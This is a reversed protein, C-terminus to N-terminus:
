VDAQLCSDLAEQMSECHVFEPDGNPKFSWVTYGSSDPQPGTVDVFGDSVFRVFVRAASDNAPKIAVLKRIADAHLHSGKTDIAYVDKDKWVLFDPYFNLTKGPTPLPISYGSRAPNRCWTPGKKDLTKAFHEEFPNFDDEDYAKHLANKFVKESGPSVLVPGVEYPNPGRLKLYVQDVFAQGVKIAVDTIHAAAPSSMGIRADFKTPAGDSGSTAAVGLAGKHVRAVERTFLWRALVLASEGYDEWSFLQGGPGGVIRQVSVRKGTGRTNTGDDNRYDTMKGVYEGIRKEARETIIAPVPIVLKKKPPYQTKSKRGPRTTTVKIDFKGTTIKEEVAAVVEEFVGSAEVRVFIQATNLRQDKYHKRGPQRLLRGIIQEAQVRSGMSKDVYAFYVLPEDWGEQLSQNFIIHRFGGTVLREYDSDGGRFLIFEEPAPYNKDIKLDCYVVIESPDVKLKETLQRWILIPPAHRQAFPQKPDDREGSAESVNTKCVYVAKPLGSLGQVQAAKSAVKLEQTMERVVDEMSAQRGVLNIESKILGSNAVAAADVQTVLDEDSLGGIKNLHDIVDSEFKQPLRSTATALVFADPQLELLLGTQRDSLNHAEDYVVILPRRLGKEDPRM